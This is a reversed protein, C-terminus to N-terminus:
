TRRLSSGRAIGLAAPLLVFAMGLATSLGVLEALGIEEGYSGPALRGAAVYLAVLLVTVTVWRLVVPGSGTARRADDRAWRLIAHWVVAAGLMGVLVTGVGAGMVSLVLFLCGLALAVAGVRLLVAIM